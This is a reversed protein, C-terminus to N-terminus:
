LSATDIPSDALCVAVHWAKTARFLKQAQVSADYMSAAQFNISKGKYFAMYTRM